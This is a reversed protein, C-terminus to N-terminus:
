QQKRRLSATEPPQHSSSTRSLLIVTEHGLADIELDPTFSASNGSAFVKRSELSVKLFLHAAMTLLNAVSADRAAIARAEGIKPLVSMMPHTLEHSEHPIAQGM